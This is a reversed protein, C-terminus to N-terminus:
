GVKRGQAFDFPTRAGARLVELEQPLHVRQVGYPKFIYGWSRSSLLYGPFNLNDGIACRIDHALVYVNNHYKIGRAQQWVGDYVDDVSQWRSNNVMFFLIGAGIRRDVRVWEAGARQVRFNDTNLSFVGVKVIPGEKKVSIVDKPAPPTFRDADVILPNGSRTELIAM